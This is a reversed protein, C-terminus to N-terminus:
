HTRYVVGSGRVGPSHTDRSSKWRSISFFIFMVESRERIRIIARARARMHTQLRTREKEYMKKWDRTCIIIIPYSLFSSVLINNKEEQM